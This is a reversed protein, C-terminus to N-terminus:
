KTVGVQYPYKVTDGETLRCKINEFKGCEPCTHKETFPEARDEHEWIAQCKECKHYHTKVEKM